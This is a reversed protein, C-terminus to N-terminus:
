WLSRQSDLFLDYVLQFVRDNGTFQLCTFRQRGDPTQSRIKGDAHDRGLAGIFFQFFLSQDTGHRSLSKIDAFVIRIIQLFFLQHHKFLTKALDNVFCLM